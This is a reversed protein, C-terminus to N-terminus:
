MPQCQIARRRYLLDFLNGEHPQDWQVHSTPVPGFNLRDILPCHMLKDVFDPRRTLATLTLTPGIQDLMQDQSVEVVSTFPFLFENNGLPHALSPCRVVTPCLFTADDFTKLRPGSRHTATVDRAGSVKLGRDIIADIQHAMDPNAFASLMAQPDDASRPEIAALRRALTDAIADGHRPVLISSVNICSRGGNDVVSACLVDLYKEWHDVSDEGILIKSRGTGHTQVSPNDVYPRLTADDGFIIACSCGTMIADAGDHDTPYFGIAEDPLGAARLSAVIRWPTWPEQRGPKVIVPTKLAVAPLWISNVGPSNSPLVVGFADAVPRFSVPVGGQRGSGHNFVELDDIGRTLGRVITRIDTLVHHIKAM